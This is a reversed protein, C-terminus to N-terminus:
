FEAVSGSDEIPQLFANFLIQLQAPTFNVILDQTVANANNDTVINHAKLVTIMTNIKDLLERQIDEAYGREAILDRYIAWQAQTFYGGVFVKRSKRRKTRRRLNQRKSKM